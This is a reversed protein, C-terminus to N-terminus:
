LRQKLAKIKKQLEKAPLRVTPDNQWIEIASLLVAPTLCQHHELQDIVWLLGHVEVHQTEAYSRLRKDSTLLISEPTQRALVFSTVDQWSLVPHDRHILLVQQLSPGNLEKIQLGSHILRQKDQASFSRLEAFTLDPIWFEFPLSLFPAILETMELDILCCADSVIIRM